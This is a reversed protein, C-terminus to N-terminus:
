RLEPVITRLSSTPLKINYGRGKRGCMMIKLSVPPPTLPRHADDNDYDYDVNIETDDDDDDDYYNIKEV